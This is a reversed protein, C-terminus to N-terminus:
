NCYGFARKRRTARTLELRWNGAGAATHGFRTLCVPASAPPEPGSEAAAVALM